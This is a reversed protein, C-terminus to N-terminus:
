YTVSEKTDNFDLTISHINTDVIDQAIHSSM